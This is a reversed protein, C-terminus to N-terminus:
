ATCAARATGQRTVTPESILWGEVAPWADAFPDTRTRWLRLRRIRVEGDKWATSLIDLFAFLDPAAPTFPVDAPRRAAMDSWVYVGLFAILQDRRIEHVYLTEDRLGTSRLHARM